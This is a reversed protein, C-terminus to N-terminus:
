ALDSDGLTYWWTTALYEPTFEPKCVNHIMRRQMWTSSATWVFGREAFRKAEVSWPPMVTMLRQRGAERQRRAAAALLADQAESDAEPVLWDVITAADPALGSDPKLVMLGCLRGARRATWIEYDARAPNEVYRWQLYRCDRRLLCRKDERVRDYLGGVDLPVAAVKSVEIGPPAPLPALERDRILYDIVTMLEYKLYRQGIRFAADVPFGYFLADGITRSHAWFPMCTEVFLSKAKLGQRYNPHTMSDVCHVFLQEGWPTDYRMPMGAYQSAVMGDDDIALSIRHGAPNRLYAWQWQELTRDVYSPGCVERFVLNFTKLIAAEDGPRYPRITLSSTM